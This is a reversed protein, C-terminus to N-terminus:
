CPPGLLDPNQHPLASAAEGASQSQSPYFSSVPGKRGLQADGDRRKERMAFEGRGFGAGAGLQAGEGAGKREMGLQDPERLEEGEDVSLEGNAHSAM